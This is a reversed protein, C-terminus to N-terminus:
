SGVVRGAASHHRTNVAAHVNGAHRREHRDRSHLIVAPFRLARQLCAQCQLILDALAIMLQMWCHTSGRLARLTRETGRQQPWRVQNLFLCLGLGGIALLDARKPGAGTCLCALMGPQAHNFQMPKMQHLICVRKPHLHGQLQTCSGTTAYAICFLVPGAVAERVFAFIVPHFHLGQVLRFSSKLYVSGIVFSTQVGAVALQCQLAKNETFFAARGVNCKSSLGDTGHEHWCVHCCCSKSAHGSTQLNLEAVEHKGEARKPPTQPPNDPVLGNLERHAQESSSRDRDAVKVFGPQLGVWAMGISTPWAPPPRITVNYLASHSV